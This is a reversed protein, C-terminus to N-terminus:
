SALPVEPGEHEVCEIAQSATVGMSEILTRLHGHVRALRRYLRKPEMGFGAAIENVRRGEIHRLHVLRRDDAPLRSLAAKLCGVVHSRTRHRSREILVVLPDHCEPATVEVHDLSVFARRAWTPTSLLARAEVVSLPRNASPSREVADLAAVLPQGDRVVRRELQVATPGLARARASPRWKGWTSIQWDLLVRRTLVNLYTTIRSRGKFRRLARYDDQVLRACVMSFLEERDADSLKRARAVQRVVTRLLPTNDELWARPTLSPDVPRPPAKSM